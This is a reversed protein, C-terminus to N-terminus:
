CTGNHWAQRAASLPLHQPPTLFFEQQSYVSTGSSPSEDSPNQKCVSLGFHPYKALQHIGFLLVNGANVLVAQYRWCDKLQRFDLIQDTTGSGGTLEQWPAGRKPAQETCFTSSLSHFCLSEGSVETDGSVQVGRLNEMKAALRVAQILMPEMEWNGSQLTLEPWIEECPYVHHNSPM